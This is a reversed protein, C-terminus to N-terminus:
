LHLLHKAAGFNPAYDVLHVAMDAALDPLLHSGNPGHYEKTNSSTFVIPSALGAVRLQQAAELYTEVIVCDKMSEKGKRAPARAANVRSLARGAVAADDPVTQAVKIWRDLVVGARTAHGQFHAVQLAGQGGFLTVVDHMRQIQQSMKALKGSAEQEVDVRNATLELGVQSAMLVVLQAGTEAATLLAMGAQADSPSLTSRTLDRVVDLLSCTDVCLIPAKLAVLAALEAATLSM